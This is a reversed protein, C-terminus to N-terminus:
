LLRNTLLGAVGRGADEREAEDYLADLAAIADKLKKKKMVSSINQNLLGSLHRYSYLQWNQAVWHILEDDSLYSARIYNDVHVKGRPPRCVHVSDLMTHLSTTDMAMSARGETTCKKVRGFGELVMDFACQCVELWVQERVQTSADAFGDGRSM